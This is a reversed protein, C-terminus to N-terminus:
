LGVGRCSKLGVVAVVVEYRATDRSSHNVVLSTEGWSAVNGNMKSPMSLLISREIRSESYVQYWYLACALASSAKLTEFLAVTRGQFSNDRSLISILGEHLM